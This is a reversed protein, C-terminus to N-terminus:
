CFAGVDQLRDYPAHDIAQESDHRLKGGVDNRKAELRQTNYQLYQWFSVNITTKYFQVM